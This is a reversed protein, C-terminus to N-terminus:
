YMGGGFSGFSGGMLRNLAIIAACVLTAIDRYAFLFGPIFEQIQDVSLAVIVLLPVWFMLM